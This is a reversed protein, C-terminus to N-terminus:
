QLSEPSPRPDIATQFDEGDLTMQIDKVGEFQWLCQSLQARM